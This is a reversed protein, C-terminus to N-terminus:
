KPYRKFVPTWPVGHPDDYWMIPLTNDPTNHSFGILLQGDDFGLPYQQSLKSGYKESLIRSFGQDIPPKENKFIRSEPEFCKFTKDLEVVAEVVDFRNLARVRDLGDVNGFVAFYYIRAAPQLTRIAPVISASYRSIQDGSGCLDDLFVYNKINPDAIQIQVGAPSQIFQFIDLQSAFLNKPLRNEQRFYYMLHASSESANGVCIFRTLGLDIQLLPEIVAVDRTGNHAKRISEILRYQIHDRYLSRMLSRIEFLGFYLFQTLLFLAQIQEDKAPDDDKAFQDLWEKVVIWNAKGSWSSGNLTKIKTQLREIVDDRTDDPM